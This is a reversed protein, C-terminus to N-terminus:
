KDIMRQHALYLGSALVSHSEIGFHIDRASDLKILQVVPKKFTIRQEPGYYVGVNLYPIKSYDLLNEIKLKSFTELSEFYNFEESSGFFDNISKYNSNANVLAISNDALDCNVNPKEFHMFRGYYPWQIIILKPKEPVTTIWMTLNHLVADIGSGGLGLNYYDCKLKKALVHTYIKEQELGVGETFSCGVSLIYNSKDLDKIDKCRHGWSNREYSVPRTRYYWTSPMVKLNNQFLESSDSGTFEENAHYQNYGIFRDGYIKFM